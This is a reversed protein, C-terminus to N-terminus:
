PWLNNRKSPSVAYSKRNMVSWYLACAPGIADVKPMPNATQPCALSVSDADDEMICILAM